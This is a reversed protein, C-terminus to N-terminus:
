SAIGKQVEKSLSERFRLYLDYEEKSEFGLTNLTKMDLMM